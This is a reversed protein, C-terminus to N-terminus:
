ATIQEHRLGEKRHEQAADPETARVRDLARMMRRIERETTVLGKARVVGSDDIAFLFPTVAAQYMLYAVDRDVRVIDLETERFAPITQIVDPTASTAVVIRTDDDGRAIRELATMAADCSACGPDAFLLITAAARPDFKRREGSSVSYTFPPAVNGVDLGAEESTARSVRLLHALQRYLVTLIAILGFMLVWQAIIISTPVQIM